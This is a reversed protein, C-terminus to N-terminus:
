GFSRSPERSPRLTPAVSHAPEAAQAERSQRVMSARRGVLIVSLSGIILVLGAAVFPLPGDARAAAPGVADINAPDISQAVPGAGVPPASTRCPPPYCGPVPVQARAPLAAGLGMLFLGFIVV